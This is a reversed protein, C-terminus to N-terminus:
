MILYIKPMSMNQIIAIKQSNNSLSMAKIEKCFVNYPESNQILFSVQPKSVMNM